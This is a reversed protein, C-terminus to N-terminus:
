FKEFLKAPRVQLAKALRRITELSPNRQGRELLAVTNRHMGMLEALAEQSIKPRKRERIKRISEGFM